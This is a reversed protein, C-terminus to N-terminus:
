TSTPCGPLHTVQNKKEKRGAVHSRLVFSPPPFQGSLLPLSPRCNGEESSQHGLSMVLLVLPAFRVRPNLSELLLKVLEVLEVDGVDLTQLHFCFSQVQPYVTV